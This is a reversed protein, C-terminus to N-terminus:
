PHESYEELSVMQLCNMPHIRDSSDSSDSSDPRTEYFYELKCDDDNAVYERQRGDRAM